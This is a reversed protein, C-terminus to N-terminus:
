RHPATSCAASAGACLLGLTNLLDRTGRRYEPATDCAAVSLLDATPNTLIRVIDPILPERTPDADVVLDLAVGLLRRETVDVDARRVIVM